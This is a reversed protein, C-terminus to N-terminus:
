GGGGGGGDLVGGLGGGGGLGGWAFVRGHQALAGVGHVDRGGLGGAALGLCRAALAL